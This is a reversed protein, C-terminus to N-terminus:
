QVVRIEESNSWSKNESSYYLYASSAPARYIGPIEAKLDLNIIKKEKPGIGRYYLMLKNDELEFFDVLGKEELEELQWMQVSLGAPIGLVVMPSPQGQLSRNAIETTMRVIEGMATSTDKLSTNLAIKCKSDSDPTYTAWNVNVSWPIPRDTGSLKVSITSKGEKLYQALDDILVPKMDDPSYQRTAVKENNVFIEIDGGEQTKQFKLTYDSLTRLAMVTSQTNGFRGGARQSMIFQVGEQVLDTDIADSKLAAMVMLSTTEIQLSKGTSYMISHESLLNDAGKTKFQNILIDLLIQGQKKDDVNFLVNAMLGLRYADKSDLAEKVASVIEKNIDEVGIESLAYVIYANFVEENVRGFNHLARTSRKFFGKGDRRGLLWKTTRDIMADDVKEYVDKMDHFQILGYATLGEHPPTKGFWEFGKESTEYGVLKKYGRDLYGKARTEVTPDVDGTMKMFKLALINPYNSSSVQEFCGHPERIISELASTLNSLMSPYTVFEASVSGKVYDNLEVDLSGTQQNGSASVMKPFGKSKVEISGSFSDKYGKSSANLNIFQHGEKGLVECKLYYTKVTDPMLTVEPNFADLIKFGDSLKVDITGSLEKKTNNRIVVPIEIVDGFSLRRPIKVDLDMLQQVAYTFETRGVEGGTSVGEVFARFTTTEDSNYFEVKAKGKEDTTVKPNWYITERTDNGKNYVNGSTYKPAYFQRARYFSVRQGKPQITLQNRNRYYNSRWWYSSGGGSWGSYYSRGTKTTILVVGNVARGGYLASAAAGKLVSISEIDDPNLDTARNGYDVGTSIPFSSFSRDKRNIIRRHHMSNADYAFRKSVGANVRRLQNPVDPSNNDAMPIGDIVFLPSNNGWPRTAGRIVIRTSSGVGGSSNTVQVGAIGSLQNVVNNDRARMLDDGRVQKVAYTLNREEKKIGLATVVVEEINGGGDNLEVFTSSTNEINGYDTKNALAIAQPRKGKSIKEAVQDARENLGVSTQLDISLANFGSYGYFTHSASEFRFSSTVESERPVNCFSFNGYADTKTHRNMGKIKLNKFPIPEQNYLLVGNICNNNAEYKRLGLWNKESFALINEWKFKRWGHTMMVLDLAEQAKEEEPDFYFYPEEIKGKLDSTMLLYSMINDQKDDSLKVVKDNTVALAFGGQVPRDFADTVEIKMTVKERPLYKEKNTTVDINLQQHYNMFVLRESHPVKQLDFITFQAIGQPFDKALVEVITDTARINLEKVNYIEGRVQGVLTIKQSWPVHIKLTIKEEDSQKVQIGYGFSVTSPLDYKKSIGAPSTIKAYYRKGKEPTVSFVGMGMHYSDFTGIKEDKNNYIVGRVDAAKGFENLAKFAINTNVNEIIEGGEPFFQLDIDNLVIPISRSISEKFGGQDILVTLTGENSKLHDPLKFSVKANGEKDTTSTAAEIVNGDLRAKFEFQHNAVAQNDLSKVNLTASAKEGVGYAERDFDLKMLVKPYVVSQVKIKKEFVADSGFNLVETTYAKLTYIGGPAYQDLKFEGPSIMGWTQMINRKIRSGKPDYLEVYLVDNTLNEQHNKGDVIFASYWIDDGPKYFTRDTQIYIKQHNFVTDFVALKKSILSNNNTEQAWNIASAGLSVILFIFRITNM